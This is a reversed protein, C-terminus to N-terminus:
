SVRTAPLVIMTDTPPPPAEARTPLPAATDVAAAAALWVVREAAGTEPERLTLLM